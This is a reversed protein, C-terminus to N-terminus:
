VHGGYRSDRRGIARIEFEKKRKWFMGIKYGLKLVEAGHPIRRNKFRVIGTITSSRLLLLPSSPDM